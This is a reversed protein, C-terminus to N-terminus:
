APVTKSTMRRKIIRMGAILIVAAIGSYAVRFQAVVAAVGFALALGGLVVAVDKVPADPHFHKKSVTLWLQILLVLALAMQNAFYITMALPDRLHHGWVSTSFPLTCVFALFLFTLIVNAKSWTAAVDLVRHQHMWFVGALLFSIAFSIWSSREKLLAATLTGESGIPAKIDLILITMAIAFIGDSLAEVRHKSFM